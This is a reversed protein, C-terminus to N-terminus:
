EQTFKSSVLINNILLGHIGLDISVYMTYVEYLDLLKIGKQTDVYPVVADWTGSYLIISIKRTTPILDLLYSYSHMSGAPDIQYTINQACPGNWVQGPFKAKFEVENM